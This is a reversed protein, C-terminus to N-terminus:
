IYDRLTTVSDYVLFCGLSLGKFRAFFRFDCPRESHGLLGKKVRDQPPGATSPPFTAGSPSDM